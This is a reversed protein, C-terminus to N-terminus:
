LVERRCVTTKLPRAEVLWCGPDLGKLQWRVRAEFLGRWRATENFRSGLGEWSELIARESSDKRSPM